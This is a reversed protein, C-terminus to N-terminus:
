APATIGIQSPLGSDIEVPAAPALPPPKKLEIEKTVAAISNGVKAVVRHLDDNSIGLRKKLIRIQAADALDIKNRATLPKLRRMQAAGDICNLRGASAKNRSRRQVRFTEELLQYSSGKIRVGTLPSLMDSDSLAM